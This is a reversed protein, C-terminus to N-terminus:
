RLDLPVYGFNIIHAAPWVVYNAKLTPKIKAQASAIARFNFLFIESHPSTCFSFLVRLILIEASCNNFLHVNVTSPKFTSLCSLYPVPVCAMSLCLITVRACMHVSARVCVHVCMVYFCCVRVCVERPPRGTNDHCCLLRLDYLPDDPAPRLVDQPDRSTPQYTYRAPHDTCMHLLPALNLTHPRFPLPTKVNLCM